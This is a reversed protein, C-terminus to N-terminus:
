VSTDSWAYIPSQSQSQSQSPDNDYYTKRIRDAKDYLLKIYIIRLVFMIITMVQIVSFSLSDIRHSTYLYISYVFISMDSSFLSPLYHFRVHTASDSMISLLSYELMTCGIFMCVAVRFIIPDCSVTINLRDVYWCPVVLASITLILRYVVLITKIIQLLM